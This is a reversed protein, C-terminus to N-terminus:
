RVELGGFLCTSEICITVKADKTASKRKDDVGGFLSTSVIKVNVDDPVLITVGGFISSSSIVVDHKIKAERLDCKIGGFVAELKCGKFDQKDFDIKQAAFAAWYEERENSGEESLKEVEKIIKSKLSDKLIMSVGCIVLIVPVILKWIMGFHLVGLCGLMLCVGVLIGILDGTKDKDKNFLSIFCPVIIFLTWWGPFFIDIRALGLANVGWVMGLVILVIGWLWSTRRNM